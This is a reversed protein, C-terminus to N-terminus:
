NIQEVGTHMSALVTSGRYHLLRLLTANGQIVSDSRRETLKHMLQMMNTRVCARMCAM